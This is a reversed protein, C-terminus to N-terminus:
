KEALALAAEREEWGGQGDPIIETLEIRDEMISHIKGYNRGVYNGKRVRYVTGQPGLILAWTEVGQALTGAMRLADLPFAELEERNRQEPPRIGSGASAQPQRQEDVVANDPQFPNRLNGSEYMHSPPIVIAPLPEVPWGKRALVEQVYSELDQM